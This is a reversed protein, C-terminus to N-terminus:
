TARRSIVPHVDDPLPGDVRIAFASENAKLHEVVGRGIAIFLMRADEDQPPPELGAELRVDRLAEEIERALSGAMDGLSGGYLQAM